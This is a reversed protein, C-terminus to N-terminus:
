LPTKSLSARYPYRPSLARIPRPCSVGRLARLSDGGVESLLDVILCSSTNSAAAISADAHAVSPAARCSGAGAVVRGIARETTTRGVAEGVVSGVGITCLSVGVCVMSNVAVASGVDVTATSGVAVRVRMESIRGAALSGSGTTTRPPLSRESGALVDSLQVPQAPQIQHIPRPIPLFTRPSPAPRWPHHLRLRRSRPLPAM